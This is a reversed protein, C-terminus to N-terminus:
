GADVPEGITAKIRDNAPENYDDALKVLEQYSIGDCPKDFLCRLDILQILLRATIQNKERVTFETSKEVKLSLHALFAMVQAPPMIMLDEHAQNLDIDAM